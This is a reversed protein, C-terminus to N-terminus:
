HLSRKIRTCQYPLHSTLVQRHSFYLHRQAFIDLGTEQLAGAFGMGHILGFVVVVALTAEKFVSKVNTFAMVAISAAITIEVPRSPLVFIDLAALTLSISHAVTFCTILKAVNLFGIQFSEVGKWGKGNKWGSWGKNRNDTSAKTLVATLLLSFVFLLHDYGTLIHKVGLALFGAFTKFTSGTSFTETGQGNEFQAFSRGNSTFFYVSMKIASASNKFLSSEVTFIGDKSACSVPMEFSLTAVSAEHVVATFPTSLNWPCEQGNQCIVFHTAFYTTFLNLCIIAASALATSVLSRMSNKGVFTM